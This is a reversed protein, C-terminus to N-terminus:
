RDAAVKGIIGVTILLLPLFLFLNYNTLNTFYFVVMLVVGTYILPIGVVPRVHHSLRCFVNAATTLSSRFKQGRFRSAQGTTPTTSQTQQHDSM